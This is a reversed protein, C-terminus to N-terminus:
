ECVIRDVYHEEACEHVALREQNFVHAELKERSESSAKLKIRPIRYLIIAYRKLHGAHGDCINHGLNAFFM